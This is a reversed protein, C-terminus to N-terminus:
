RAARLVKVRELGTDEQHKEDQKSVKEVKESSKGDWYHGNHELNNTANYDRDWTEGCHECTHIQEENFSCIKKCKHCRKSSNKANALGILMNGQLTSRFYSLSAISQGSKAAGKGKKEPEPEKQLDSLNLPKTADKFSAELIVVGFQERMKSSFNEYYKKRRSVLKRRLNCEITRLHSERALWGDGCVEKPEGYVMRLTKNGLHLYHFMDKDGDFRNNNWFVVLQELRDKSKWQHIHETKEKLWQPVQSNKLFRKLEERADDFSTDRISKLDDCYKFEDLMKQPLVLEGTSPLGQRIQEFSSVIQGLEAREEHTEGAITVGDTWTCVRRGGKVKRWGIDMKVQKSNTALLKFDARVDFQVKWKMHKGVRYGVLYANMLRSNLPLPRHCVIHCEAWIPKGSKDSEIRISCTTRLKSKSAKKGDNDVFIGNGNADYKVILDSPYELRILTSEGTATFTAV